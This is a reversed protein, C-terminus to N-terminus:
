ISSLSHRLITSVYRGKFPGTDRVKITPGVPERLLVEVKAKDRMQALAAQYAEFKARNELDMRIRQKAEDESLSAFRTANQTYIEDIESQKVEVKKPVLQERLQEVTMSKAKAEDELLMKTILNNLARRRLTTIRDLLGQLEPGVM